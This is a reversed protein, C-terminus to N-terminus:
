GRPAIGRPHISGYAGHGARRDVVAYTDLPDISSILSQDRPLDLVELRLMHAVDYLSPSRDELRSTAGLKTGGLTPCHGILRHTSM